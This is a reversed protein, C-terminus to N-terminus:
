APSRRAAQESAEALWNLVAIAFLKRELNLVRVQAAATEMKDWVESFPALCRAGQGAMSHLRQSLFLRIQDLFLDFLQDDRTALRDSIVDFAANDRHPLRSLTLDLNQAFALIREDGTEIAKGVAGGAREILLAQHDSDIGQHDLALRMDQASLPRLHLVRCRSRITPPLKGPAHCVIFLIAKEPPEEIIKLLSNVGFRNMEDISDIIAVRWGGEAATGAFFRAVKRVQDVPIMQPLKDKGSEAVRELVALDPHSQAAVQRAVPHDSPLMLDGSPPTMAGYALVYRALRYALTAKGIGKPGTILWAHHLRGGTLNARFEEQAEDHGFLLHHHRPHAHETDEDVRSM